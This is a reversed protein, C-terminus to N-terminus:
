GVSGYAELSLLSAPDLNGLKSVTSGGTTGLKGLASSMLGAGVLDGGLGIGAQIGGGILSQRRAKRQEELQKTQLYKDQMRQKFAEAEARRMREEELLRRSMLDGLQLGFNTQQQGTDPFPNYPM